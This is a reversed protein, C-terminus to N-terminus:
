DKRYTYLLFTNIIIGIMIFILFIFNVKLYHINITYLQLKAHDFFLRSNIVFFYITLFIISCNYSITVKYLKNRSLHTFLIVIIYIITCILFLIGILGCAFIYDLISSCLLLYCLFFLFRLYYFFKSIM